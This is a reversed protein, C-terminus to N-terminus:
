PLPGPEAVAIVHRQTRFVLMGNSIAPSSLMPEGTPNVALQEFTRGARVVVVHGDANPYYLRGDAAVPSATYNYAGTGFPFRQQYAREGTEADYASLIGPETCVYLLDGYLLPTTIYAGGRRKSWVVFGNSTEDDGLTIDGRAGPRIAYIPQTTNGQGSTMFIVGLGAIPSPTAHQTHKGM